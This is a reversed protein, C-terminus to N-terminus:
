THLPCREKPEVSGCGLLVVWGPVPPKQQEPERPLPTSFVRAPCLPLLGTPGRLPSAAGFWRGGARRRAPPSSPFRPAPRSFGVLTQTPCRARGCGPGLWPRKSSAPGAVRGRSVPPPRHRAGPAAGASCGLPSWWLLPPVVSVPLPARLLCRSTRMLRPAAQPRAPPRAAYPAGRVLATCSVPSAWAVPWASDPVSALAAATSSLFGLALRLLRLRRYVGFGVRPTGGRMLLPGDRAGLVPQVAASVTVAASVAAAVVAAQCRTAALLLPRFTPPSAPLTDPSRGREDRGNPAGQRTGTSVM